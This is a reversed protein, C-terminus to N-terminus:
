ELADHMSARATVDYRYDAVFAERDSTPLGFRADQVPMPEGTPIGRAAAPTTTM